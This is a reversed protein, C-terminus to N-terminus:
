RCRQGGSFDPVCRLPSSDGPAAPIVNVYPPVPHFPEQPVMPRLATPKWPLPITVKGYATSSRRTMHRDGLGPFLPAPYGPLDTGADSGKEPETQRPPRRCSRCPYEALIERIAKLNKQGEDVPEDDPVPLAMCGATMLLASCWIRWAARM